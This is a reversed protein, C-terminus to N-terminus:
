KWYREFYSIGYGDEDEPDLFVRPIQMFFANWISGDEFTVFFHDNLLKSNETKVVIESDLNNM